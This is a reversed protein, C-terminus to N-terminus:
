HLSYEVLTGNARANHLSTSGEVILVLNEGLKWRMFIDDMQVGEEKISCIRFNRVVKLFNPLILVGHGQEQQHIFVGCVHLFM